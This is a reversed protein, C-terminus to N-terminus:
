CWIRALAAYAEEPPNPASVPTPPSGPALAPASTKSFGDHEVSRKLM